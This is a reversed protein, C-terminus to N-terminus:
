ACTRQRQRKTTFHCCSTAAAWWVVRPEPQKPPLLASHSPFICRLAEETWPDLTMAGTEERQKEAMRALM